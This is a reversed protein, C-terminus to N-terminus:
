GEKRLLMRAWVWLAIGALPISSWAALWFWTVAPVPNFQLFGVGLLAALMTTVAGIWVVTIVGQGWRMQPDHPLLIALLTSSVWGLLFNHLFFIRLQTGASWRWVGPWIVV